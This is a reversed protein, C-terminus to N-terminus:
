VKLLVKSIKQIMNLKEQQIHNLIEIFVKKLHNLRLYHLNIMTKNFLIQVHIM